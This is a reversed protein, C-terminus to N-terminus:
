GLSKLKDKLKQIAEQLIQEVAQLTSSNGSGEEDIEIELDAINSELNLITKQIVFKDDSTSM